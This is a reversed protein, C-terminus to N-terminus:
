ISILFKYNHSLQFLQYVLCILIQMSTVDNESAASAVAVFGTEAELFHMMLDSCLFLIRFHLVSFKACLVMDKCTVVKILGLVTDLIYDM